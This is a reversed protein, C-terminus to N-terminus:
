LKPFFRSIKETQYVNKFKLIEKESAKDIKRKVTDSTVIILLLLLETRDIKRVMAQVTAFIAITLYRYYIHLNILLSFYFFLFIYM